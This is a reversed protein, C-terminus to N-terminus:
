YYGARLAPLFFGSDTAVPLTAATLSTATATDLSCGFATTVGGTACDGDNCAVGLKVGDNNCVGDVGDSVALGATCVSLTSAGIASLGAITIGTRECDVGDSLAGIPLILM